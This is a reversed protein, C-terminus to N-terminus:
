CPVLLARLWEVNRTTFQNLQCSGANWSNSLPVLQVWWLSHLPCAVPPLAAVFALRRRLHHLHRPLTQRYRRLRADPPRRRRHRSRRRLIRHRFGVSVKELLWVLSPRYLLVWARELSPLTVHHSSGSGRAAV